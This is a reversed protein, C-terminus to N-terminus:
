RSLSERTPLTHRLRREWEALIEDHAEAESAERRMAKRAALHAAPGRHSPHQPQTWPSPLEYHEERTLEYCISQLHRERTWGPDWTGTNVPRIRVAGTPAHPDDPSGGDADTSAEKEEEEEVVEAGEHDQGDRAAEDHAAMALLMNSAEGGGSKGGGSEGGRMGAKGSKGAKYDPSRIAAFRMIAMALKHMVFARRWQERPQYSGRWIRRVRVFPRDSVHESRLSTASANRTTSGGGGRPDRLTLHLAGTSRAPSRKPSQPPAYSFWNPDKEDEDVMGGSGHNPDQVIPHLFGVPRVSAESLAALKEFQRRRSEAEVVADIRENALPAPQWHPRESWTPELERIPEIAESAELQVNKWPKTILRESSPPVVFSPKMRHPGHERGGDVESVDVLLKRLSPLSVSGSLSGALGKSGGSRKSHVHSPGRWLPHAPDKGNANYRPM